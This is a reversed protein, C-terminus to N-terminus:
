GNRAADLLHRYGQETMWKARKLHSEWCRYAGDSVAAPDRRLIIRAAERWDAGESEADLIRLYTVFHAQDYGTLEDSWPAEDAIDPELQPM